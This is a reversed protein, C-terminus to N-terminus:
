RAWPDVLEGAGFRAKKTPRKPSKEVEPRTPPVRSGSLVREQGEPAVEQSAAADQQPVASNASKAASASPLALKRPSAVLPLVQTDALPEPGGRSRWLWVATTVMLLSVALAVSVWTPWRRAPQVVEFGQTVPEFDVPLQRQSLSFRAGAEPASARPSGNASWADRIQDLAEVLAAMTPFRKAPDKELCCLAVTELEGLTSSALVQSPPVPQMYMHKTLVGMFSDAEFPVRGTFMEYMVVGLAYIDVRQDLDDGAAQEPSMYHPTGFVIGKKTLRSSGAVQALGFDLVKIVPQEGAARIIQINDPKLDRHIIGAAHAAGLATAIQRILELAFPVQIAGERRILERLSTGTLLEMVFYTQGSPLTGFDTIQVVNPHNIRAAARAEQLFRAGLEAESALDARLAKLAFSRGLAVHKVEYVTGMGGEGLVREVEYRQDIVVGLLPDNRPARESGELATGDFPCFQADAAFYQECAPCLTSRHSRAVLPKVAYGAVEPLSDAPPESFQTVTEKM